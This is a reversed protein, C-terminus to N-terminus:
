QIKILKHGSSYTGSETLSKRVVSAAGIISNSPIAIQDYVSVDIGLQTFEGIVSGGAVTCGGSIFCGTGIYCNHAILTQAHVIVDKQLKSHPYLTAMPYVVCGPGVSAHVHHSQDHLMSFRDVRFEDFYNTVTKRLEFDKIILNIYSKDTAPTESLFDYPDIRELAYGAHESIFFQLDQYTATDFSVM